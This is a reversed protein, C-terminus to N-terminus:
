SGRQVSWRARAIHRAAEKTDKPGLTLNGQAADICTLDTELPVVCLTLREKCCALCCALLHFFLSLLPLAFSSHLSLSLL